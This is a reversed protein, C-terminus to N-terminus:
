EHLPHEGLSCRVSHPKLKAFAAADSFRNNVFGNFLFDSIYYILRNINSEFM